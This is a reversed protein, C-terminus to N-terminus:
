SIFNIFTVHHLGPCYFPGLPSLFVGGLNSFPGQLHFFFQQYNRHSELTVHPKVFFVIDHRSGQVLFPDKPSFYFNNM